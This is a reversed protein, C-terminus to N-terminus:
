QLSRAARFTAWAVGGLAIAIAGSYALVTRADSLELGAGAQLNGLPVAGLVCLSYVSMVRGLFRPEAYTQLLTSAYNIFLAAALGFIVLVAVALVLTPALGTAVYTVGGLPLAYLFWRGRGERPGFRTLLISGVIIGAGMGMNLLAIGAAGRHFTDNSFVPFVAQSVGIFFLGPVAGLTLVQWIRPENRVYGLGARIQALMSERAPLRQDIGRLQTVCIGAAVLLAVQVVFGTTLGFAAITFGGLAPGLFSQGAMFALTGWIVGNQLREGPALLNILSQRAPNQFASASGIVAAVLFVPWVARVNIAALLVYVCAALAGALITVYLIRDRGFRDAAAGGVLTFLATPVTQFLLALAVLFRVDTRDLVYTPVAVIQIGVALSMCLTMIWWWRYTVGAFPNRDRQTPAADEITTSQVVVEGQVETRVRAM